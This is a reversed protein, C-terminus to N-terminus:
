KSKIKEIFDKLGLKYKVINKAHEMDYKKLTIKEDSFLIVAFKREVYDKFVKIKKHQLFDFDSIEWSSLHDEYKNYDCEQQWNTGIPINVISYKGKELALKMIEYAKNKTFHEIVDGFNILDYKNETERLFNYADQQYINNYFYSHYDKLYEPFIEVGDIKRKWDGKYNGDDWVELFERMLIGWRGFGVGVDLITQPNIKRIFEINYSINQWNSTPM